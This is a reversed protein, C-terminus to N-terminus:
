AKATIPGSYGFENKFANQLGSLTQMDGNNLAKAATRLLSAHTIMTTFAVKKDGIKTPVEAIAARKAVALSASGKGPMGQQIATGGSVIKTQQPNDPDVVEMPRAQARALSPSDGIRKLKNGGRDILWMGDTGLDQTKYGKATLAKNVNAWSAKGLKQGALE